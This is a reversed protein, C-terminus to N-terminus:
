QAGQIYEHMYIIYPQKQYLTFFIAASANYSFQQFFYFWNFLNSFFDGVKLNMLPVEKGFCNFYFGRRIELIHSIQEDTM